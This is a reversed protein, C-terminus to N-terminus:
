PSVIKDLQLLIEAAIKSSNGPYDAFYLKRLGTTKPERDAWYAEDEMLENLKQAEEQKLIPFYEELHFNSSNRTSYWDRANPVELLVLRKGLYLAGFASGGQDCLVADALKYLKSTNRVSDRDIRYGLSELLAIDKPNEVFSIPHPRVIFNYADILGSMAAAFYPISCIGEGFTPMWLITKKNPDIRFEEREASVDLGPDFYDDYRPYGMQLATGKFRKSMERQDNPGHCLFVDYMENWSALSWGDGVDAGYMFRVQTLGLQPPWYQQPDFYDPYYRKGAGAPPPLLNLAHKVANKASVVARKAWSARRSSAGRIKHNSVLYRYKNGAKLLDSAWVIDYHLTTAKEIFDAAGHSDRASKPKRFRDTLVIAFRDRGLEKWVSSYHAWLVPEHVLFGIKEVIEM